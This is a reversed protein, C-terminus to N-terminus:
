RPDSPAYIARQRDNMRRTEMVLCVDTTNFAHDVFVGDGVFGGLRLYAKILAPMAQVAAVRDIATEPLPVFQQPQLSTVRLDPPALHAHHLLSLSPTLTPVDTGHFSAVGFLIDIGENCVHRALGQWFHYLASGGRYEPHLCSRGLELLRQGSRLLPALDYEQASYFGPDTAGDAQILRYVGVVQAGLPRALDRLVLMRAKPDFADREIRAHHDVLPGDGGLEQVFVAYRLRLAEAQESADRVLGVDFLPTAVKM